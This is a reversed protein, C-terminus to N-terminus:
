QDHSSYFTDLVAVSTFDESPIFTLDRTTGSGDDFVDCLPPCLEECLVATVGELDASMASFDQNAESALAQLNDRVYFEVHGDDNPNSAWFALWHTQKNDLKSWVAGLVWLEQGGSSVVVGRPHAWPSNCCDDGKCYRVIYAIGSPATWTAKDMLEEFFERKDATTDATSM